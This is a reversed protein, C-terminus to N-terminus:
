QVLWAHGNALWEENTHIIVQGRVTFIHLKLCFYGCEAVSYRSVRWWHTITYSLPVCNMGFRSYRQLSHSPSIHLSYSSRLRLVNITTLKTSSKHWRCEFANSHPVNRSVADHNLRRQCISADHLTLQSPNWHQNVTNKYCVIYYLYNSIPPFQRHLLKGKMIQWYLKRSIYGNHM